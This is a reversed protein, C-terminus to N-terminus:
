TTSGEEGCHNTAAMHEIVRAPQWLSKPVYYVPGGADNWCLLLLVWEPDGSKEMLYTCSDWAMPLETVNPWKGDHTDAWDMNIGVVQKLDAENECIYVDGGFLDAYAEGAEAQQLAWDIDAETVDFADPISRYTTQCCNILILAQDQLLRFPQHGDQYSRHAEVFSHITIM